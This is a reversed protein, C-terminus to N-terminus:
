YGKRLSKKRLLLYVRITSQKTEKLFMELVIVSPPLPYLSQVHKRMHMRHYTHPCLVVQPFQAEGRVMHPGPIRNVGLAKAQQAPERAM